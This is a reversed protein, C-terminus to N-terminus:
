PSFFTNKPWLADHLTIVCTPWLLFQSCLRAGKRLAQGLCVLSVCFSSTATFVTHVADHRWHRPWFATSWCVACPFFKVSHSFDHVCYRSAKRKRNKKQNRTASWGILTIERLPWLLESVPSSNCHYLLKLIHFFQCNDVINFEVINTNKTIMTTILTM